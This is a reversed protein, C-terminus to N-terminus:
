RFMYAISLQVVNNTAKAGQYEAINGNDFANTLGLEYNVSLVIPNFDVGAGIGLGADFRRLGGPGFPVDVSQGDYNDKASVAYALYPGAQLLLKSKTQGLPFKYGLNLPVVLYNINETAGQFKFGKVSYLLGTNFYVNNKLDIDQVIGIHFQTNSEQSVSMGAATISMNAFNAGGKIGWSTQANSVQVFLMFVILYILKKMIKCKNIKNILIITINIM